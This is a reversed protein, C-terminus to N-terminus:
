EYEPLLSNIIYNLGCLCVCYLPTSWALDFFVLGLYFGHFSGMCPPCSVLPKSWKSGITAEMKARERLLMDDFIKFVGFCYASGIILYALFTYYQFFNSM